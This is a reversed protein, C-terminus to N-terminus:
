NHYKFEKPYTSAIRSGFLSEGTFVLRFCSISVWRESSAYILLIWNGLKRGEVINQQLNDRIIIAPLLKTMTESSFIREDDDYNDNISSSGPRLNSLSLQAHASCCTHSSPCLSCHLTNGPCWSQVPTTVLTDDNDLHPWGDSCLASSVFFIYEGEFTKFFIQILKVTIMVQTNAALLPIQLSDFIVVNKSLWM